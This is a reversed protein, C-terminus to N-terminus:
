QGKMDVIDLVTARSFLDPRESGWVSRVHARHADEDMWVGDVVYVEESIEIQCDTPTACSRVTASVVRSSARQADALVSRPVQLRVGGRVVEPPEVSVTEGDGSVTDESLFVVEVARHESAESGRSLLLEPADGDTLSWQLVFPGTRDGFGCEDEDLELASALSRPEEDSTGPVDEAGSDCGLTAVGLAVLLARGVRRRFPSYIRQRVVGDHTSAGIPERFFRFFFPVRDVPSEPHPGAGRGALERYGGRM